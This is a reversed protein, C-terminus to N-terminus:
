IKSSQLNQMSLSCNAAPLYYNRKVEASILQLLTMKLQTLLLTVATDGNNGTYTLVGTISDITFAKDAGGNNINGGTASSTTTTTSTTDDDDDDSGNSCSAFTLVM